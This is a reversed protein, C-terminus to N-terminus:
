HQKDAINHTMKVVFSVVMKHYDKQQMKGYM